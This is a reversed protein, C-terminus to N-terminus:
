PLRILELVMAEAPTGVLLLKGDPSIDLSTPHHLVDDSISTKRILSGNKVDLIVIYGDYNARTYFSNILFNGNPTFVAKGNSLYDGTPPTESAEYREFRLQGKDLDWLHVSGYGTNLALLRGDPSFELGEVWGVANWTLIRDVSLTAASLVKVYNMNKKDLLAIQTGDRSFAISWAGDLETKKWLAVDWIEVSEGRAIALKEGDPSFVINRIPNGVVPELTYERELSKTTTNWIWVTEGTEESWTRDAIWQGNASHAVFHVFDDQQFRAILDLPWGQLSHIEVSRFNDHVIARGDPTFSAFEGRSFSHVCGSKLVYRGILGCPRSPKAQYILIACSICLFICSIIFLSRNYRTRLPQIM